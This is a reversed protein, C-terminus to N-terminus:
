GELGANRFLLLRHATTCIRRYVTGRWRWWQNWGRRGLRTLLLLRWGRGRRSTLTQERHRRWGWLRRRYLTVLIQIRGRKVPLDMRGAQGGGTYGGQDTLRRRELWRRVMLKVVTVLEDVRLVMKGVVLGQPRGLRQEM